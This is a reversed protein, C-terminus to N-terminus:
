NRTRPDQITIIENGPHNSAYLPELDSDSDESSDGEESDGYTTPTM